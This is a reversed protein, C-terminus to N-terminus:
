KKEAQMQKVARKHWIKISKDQADPFKDKVKAIIEEQSLRERTLTYTLDKKTGKRVKTVEDMQAREKNKPNPVKVASEPKVEKVKEVKEIDGSIGFKLAPHLFESGKKYGRTVMQEEVWADHLALLNLDEGVEHNKIFFSVLSHHNANVMDQSAMGRLICAKQLDKHKMHALERHARDEYAVLSRQGRVKKKKTM